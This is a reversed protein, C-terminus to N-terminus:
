DESGKPTLYAAPDEQGVATSALQWWVSGTPWWRPWHTVTNGAGFNTARTYCRVQLGAADTTEWRPWYSGFLYTRLTRIWAVVVQVGSQHEM